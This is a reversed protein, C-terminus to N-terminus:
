VLRERQVRALYAKIAPHDHWYQESEAPTELQIIEGYHYNLALRVQEVSAEETVGIGDYTEPAASVAVEALGAEAILAEWRGVVLELSEEGAKVFEFGVEETSLGAALLQRELRMKEGGQPVFPIIKESMVNM